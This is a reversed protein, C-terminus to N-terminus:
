AQRAQREILERVSALAKAGGRRDACAIYGDPRVLAVGPHGARRLELVGPHAAVLRRAAEVEPEPAHRDVFLVFRGLIGGARLSGDMCRAGAGAVIPSGAYAIGLESLQQVMAHRFPALRSIVPIVANRLVEALRNPAGLARTLLHTTEIVGKIVPIREASYSDLLVENGHGR